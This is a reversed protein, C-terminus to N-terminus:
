IQGSNHGDHRPPLEVRQDVRAPHRLMQLGDVSLVIAQDAILHLLLQQELRTDFGLVSFRQTLRSGEPRLPLDSKARAIAETNQVVDVLLLM